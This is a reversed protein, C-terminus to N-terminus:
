QAAVFPLDLHVTRTCWRRRSGLTGPSADRGPLASTRLRGGQGPRQTADSVRRRGSRSATLAWEARLTQHRQASHPAFPLRGHAGSPAACASAAALAGPRAALALRGGAVHQAVRRRLGGATYFRRSREVDASLRRRRPCRSRTSRRCHLGQTGGAASILGIVEDHLYPPERSGLLHLWDIANKFSGM